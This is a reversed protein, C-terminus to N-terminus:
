QSFKDMSEMGDDGNGNLRWLFKKYKKSTIEYFVSDLGFTLINILCEDTIQDSLINVLVNIKYKLQYHLSLANEFVEAKNM